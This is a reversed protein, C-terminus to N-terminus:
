DVGAPNFGANLGPDAELRYGAGIVTGIRARAGGAALKARLARVHVRVANTFPNAEADWVHELLEEQSVAEGARRLLYELIAFEKGTLALPRGAVRAERSAPDLTLDASALLPSRVRMDRRLLARVRAVLEEFDFPKTVYDDAGADLGRVRDALARRGTLMVILLEPRAARLRGCLEVGDMDPLGVNLLAVDPRHVDALEWGSAGDAATDAAYGDREFALKLLRAIEAHDEIILIRM